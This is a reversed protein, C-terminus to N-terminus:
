GAAVIRAVVLRQVDLEDKEIWVALGDPGFADPIRLGDPRLTGLYKQDPTIIDTPGPTGPKGSARQVWIRDNWDAAIKEIVQIEPYFIMDEIRSRMMESMDPAQMTGGGGGGLAVIRLTGRDASAELERLRRDREQEEISPDVPVPEVPRSLVFQFTGDPAYVGIRYTTSDVALLRGDRLSTMLLAPTFGRLRQMRLMVSGGSTKLSTTKGDSEPEPPEWGTLITVPDAADVDLPVRVVPRGPEAQVGASTNIRGGVLAAFSHDPLPVFPPNLLGTAQPDVRVNRVYGGDPGYVVMGFKAIDFVAVTGDAFVTMGMTQGLEGPGEGPSGVSRLLSGDPAVVHITSAQRDLVYLNGAADFAVGEVDGFASWGEAEAGGITYVPQREWAITRDPGALGTGDVGDADPAASCAALGLTTIAFATRTLGSPM